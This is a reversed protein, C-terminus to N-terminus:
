LKLLGGGGWYVVMVLISAVVAVSVIFSVMAGAVPSYNDVVVM